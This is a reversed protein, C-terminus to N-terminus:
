TQPTTERWSNIIDHATAKWAIGRKAIGCIFGLRSVDMPGMLGSMDEAEALIADLEAETEANGIRRMYEDFLLNTDIKTAVRESTTM